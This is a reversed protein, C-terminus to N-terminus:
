DYSRSVAAIGDPTVKCVFTGALGEFQLTETFGGGSVTRTSISPLSTGLIPFAELISTKCIPMVDAPSILPRAATMEMWDSRKLKKVKMDKTGAAAPRVCAYYRRIMAGYTNEADISLRVRRTGDLFLGDRLVELVVATSPTPLGNVVEDLCQRELVGDANFHLWGFYGGVAGLLSVVGVAINVKNM